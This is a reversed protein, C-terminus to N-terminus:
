DDTSAPQDELRLHGTLIFFAPPIAHIRRVADRLKFQIVNVYM